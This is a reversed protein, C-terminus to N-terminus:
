EDDKVVKLIKLMPTDIVDPFMNRYQEISEADVSIGHLFELWSKEVEGILNTFLFQLLESVSPNDGYLPDTWSEYSDKLRDLLYPGISEKQMSGRPMLVNKPDYLHIRTAGEPIDDPDVIKITM